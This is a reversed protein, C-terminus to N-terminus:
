VYDRRIVIKRKPDAPTFVKKPAGSSTEVLMVKPASSGKALVKIEFEEEAQEKDTYSGIHTALAHDDAFIEELLGKDMIDARGVFAKIRQFAADRNPQLIANVQILDADDRVRLLIAVKAYPMLRVETKCQISLMDGEQARYKKSYWAGNSELGDLRAPTKASSGKITEMNDILSVKRFFDENSDVYFQTVSNATRPFTQKGFCIDIIQSM